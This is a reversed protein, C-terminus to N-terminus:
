DSISIVLKVKDKDLDTFSRFVQCTSDNYNKERDKYERNSIAEKAYFLL